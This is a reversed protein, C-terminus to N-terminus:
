ITVRGGCLKRLIDDLQELTQYRVMLTGKTGRGTISVKLGLTDALMKELAVTNADRLRGKAPKFNSGRAAAIEAETERVSLRGTKNRALLKQFLEPDDGVSLMARAHGATILGENVQDQIDRPLKLLRMTNAVYARSKGVLRAVDEQRHNFDNVLRQYALAEELISLDERQVNEILAIEAAQSDTLERVIAPVEHLGALAAARWRREGAIIEYEGTKAPHKRVLIPQIIGKERISEALEQLTAVPFNRRPQYVGPSLLHLAIKSPATGAPVQGPASRTATLQSYDEAAEGLLAGLGKGLTRRRAAPAASGQEATSATQAPPRVINITDDTTM